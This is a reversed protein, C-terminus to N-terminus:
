KGCLCILTCFPLMHSIQICYGVWFFLSGYFFVWRLISDSLNDLLPWCVLMLSSWWSFGHLCRWRLRWILICTCPRLINRGSCGYTLPHICLSGYKLSVVLIQLCIYVWLFIVCHIHRYLPLLPFTYLGGLLDSIVHLGPLCRSSYSYWGELLVVPSRFCLLKVIFKVKTTSKNWGLVSRKEVRARM